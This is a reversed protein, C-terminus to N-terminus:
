RRRGRLDVRPDLKAYLIDAVLNAVVVAVAGIMVIGMAVNVDRAVAADRLLRGMGPWSFVSETVVAGSFMAGIDLAVLTVLPALSARLAHRVVVRHEPIGRARAARIHDAALADIMAARQFRTWVAVNVLALTIVPLVLHQLHDISLVDGEHGFSFRQQTYLVVQGDGGLRDWLVVSLAAVALGAGVAARGIRGGRLASGLGCLMVLLGATFPIVAWGNDRMWIAAFQLLVGALFTPTAFGLHTGATISLDGPGDPRRASVVGLVLALIASVVTALLMLEITAPLADKIPEIANVGRNATSVGWDGRLFGTLWHWYGEYWPQDLGQQRVLRQVDESRVGPIRRLRAEPDAARYLLAYAVVSVVLLLPVAALLRRGAYAATSM